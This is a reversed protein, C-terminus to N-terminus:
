KTQKKIQERIDKLVIDEVNQSYYQILEGYLNALRKNEDDPEGQIQVGDYFVQAFNSCICRELRKLEDVPISELKSM